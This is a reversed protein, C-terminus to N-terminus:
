AVLCGRSRLGDRTAGYVSSEEAVSAAPRLQLNALYVIGAM